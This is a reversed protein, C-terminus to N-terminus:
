NGPVLKITTSKVDGTLMPRVYQPYRGYKAQYAADVQDIIAPDANEFRVNKEIGGARIHGEHSNQAVRYWSGSQGNYSRVYLNEGERVVWITVPKRLSGDRRRPSIQLEEARGIKDLEDKSWTTM